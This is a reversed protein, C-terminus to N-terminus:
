FVSDKVLFQGEAAAQGTGTSYFRYHYQGEVDASVDVHYNGTSDKVLEGDVGYIYTTQVGSPTMFVFFVSTPDAVVDDEDKFVVDCVVVDGKDYCNIPV